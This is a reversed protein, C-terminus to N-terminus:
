VEVIEAPVLGYIDFSLSLNLAACKQQLQPSLVIGCNPAEVYFGIFFEARGGSDCIRKFFERHCALGDAKVMLYDEIDQEVDTDFVHYWYSEKPVYPLTKGKRMCPQGAVDVNTPELGLADSFVRPNESPHWIRLSVRYRYTHM